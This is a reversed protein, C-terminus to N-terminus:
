PQALAQTIAKLIREIQEVVLLNQECPTLKLTAKAAARAEVVIHWAADADDWRLTVTVPRGLNDDDTM